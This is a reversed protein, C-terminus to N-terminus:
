RTCTYVHAAAQGKDYFTQVETCDSTAILRSVPHDKSPPSIEITAVTFSHYPFDGLNIKDWTVSSLFFVSDYIQEMYVQDKRYYLVLPEPGKNEELYTRVEDFVKPM